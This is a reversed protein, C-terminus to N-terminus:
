KNKKNDKNNEDPLEEKDSRIVTVSDSSIDKLSSLKSNNDEEDEDKIRSTKILKLIDSGIILLCPIVVIMLWGIPKTMITQLYGIM